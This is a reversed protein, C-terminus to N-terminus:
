FFERNSYFVEGVLGEIRIVNRDNAINRLDRYEVPSIIVFSSLTEISAGFAIKPKERELFSVLDLVYTRMARFWFARAIWM